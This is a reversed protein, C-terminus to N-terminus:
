GAAESKLEFNFTNSGPEVDARFGSQQPDAYRAPTAQRKGPPASGDASRIVDVGSISVLYSGPKIGGQSGTALEYGGDEDVLAATTAGIGGAPVFLVTIRHDRDGFM